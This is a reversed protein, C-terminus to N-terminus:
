NIKPVSLVAHESDRKVAFCCNFDMQLNRLLAQDACLRPNILNANPRIRAVQNGILLATMRSDGAQRVERVAFM